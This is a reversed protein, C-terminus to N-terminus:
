KNFLKDHTFKDKKLLRAKFANFWHLKKLDSIATGHFQEIHCKTHAIVWFDDDVILEDDRGRLHHVDPNDEFGFVGGCFFCFWEETDRKSAIFKKRISLYDTVQAQRKISYSRIKKPPDERLYQHCKCYGKGFVPYSCGEAKCTKM